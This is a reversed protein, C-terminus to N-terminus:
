KRNVHYFFVPARFGMKKTPWYQQNLAKPTTHTDRDKTKGSRAFDKIGCIVNWKVVEDTRAYLIRLQIRVLCCLVVHSQMCNFILCPSFSPSFFFFYITQRCTISVHPIIITNTTPLNTGQQQYNDKLSVTKKKERPFITACQLLCWEKHM